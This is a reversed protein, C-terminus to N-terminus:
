SHEKEIGQHMRVVLVLDLDSRATDTVSDSVPTSTRSFDISRKLGHYGSRHGAPLQYEFRNQFNISFNYRITLTNLLAELTIDGKAEGARYVFRELEGWVPLTGAKPVNISM